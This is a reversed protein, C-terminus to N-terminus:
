CIAEKIAAVYNKDAIDHDAGDVIVYRNNKIAQKAINARNVMLPYKNAEVSGLMILAPCTIQKALEAFNLKSFASVRRHGIGDKWSKKLKPLDDSFYPSFSFLWLEAPLRKAAAVFATMSGYSFGALITNKSNHKKYETELEILWEDITTRKWQIPVFKAHYGKSEIADLVSKYNRTKLDEQFGPVLLVIKM